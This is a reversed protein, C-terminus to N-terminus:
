CNDELVDYIEIGIGTMILSEIEAVHRTLLEEVKKAADEDDVAEIKFFGNLSFHVDFTRM